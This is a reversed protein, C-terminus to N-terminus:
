IERELAVDSQWAVNEVVRFQAAQESLKGRGTGLAGSDGLAHQEADLVREFGVLATEGGEDIGGDDRRAGGGFLCQAALDGGIGMQALLVARGPVVDARREAAVAVHAVAIHEGLASLTEARAQETERFREYTVGGLSGLWILFPQAFVGFGIERTLPLRQ